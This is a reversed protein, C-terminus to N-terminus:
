DAALVTQPQGSCHCCLLACCALGALVELCTLDLTSSYGAMYLAVAEEKLSRWRPEM